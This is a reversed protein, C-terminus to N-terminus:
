TKINETLHPNNIDSNYYIEELARRYLNNILVFLPTIIIMLYCCM